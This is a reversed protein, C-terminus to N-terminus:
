PRVDGRPRRRVRFVRTEGASGLRPTLSFTVYPALRRALTAGIGSVRRLAEISGFPGREARDNVIRYALEADVYPLREIEAVGAVDLDVPPRAASMRRVRVTAGAGPEEAGAAPGAKFASVAARAARERERREALAQSEARAARANASGRAADELAVRRRYSARRDNPDDGGATPAAVRRSGRPAPYAPAGSVSEEGPAAGAAGRRAPARTARAGGASSDAGRRRRARKAGGTAIASDVAEIQRALEVGGAAIAPAQARRDDRCGRVAVGLAALSALFILARREGSTAM